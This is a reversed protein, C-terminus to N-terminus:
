VRGWSLRTEKPAPLDTRGKYYREAADEPSLFGVSSFGSKRLLDEIENSDFYSVWPEGHEAARAAATSQGEVPKPAFATVVITGKPWQAITGFIDVIASKSLYALVGLCAFFAPRRRDVNVDSLAVGLKDKELDVASFYTNQLAPLGRSAFYQLKAKQSAPHDVEVIRLPLAWSPQRFAFTDFGAGVNVFQTIGSEAADQLRDEAYRSRLVVHSRLGKAQATQYREPKGRISRLTETTLLRPSIPDELILPRQDILQHVAGIVSAGLATDSPRDVKVM